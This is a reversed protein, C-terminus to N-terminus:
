LKFDNPETSAKLEKDLSNTLKFFNKETISKEPPLLVEMKGNSVPVNEETIEKVSLVDQPSNKFKEKRNTLKSRIENLIFDDINNGELRIDDITNNTDLLELLTMGGSNSILNNKLDLVKVTKNQKLWESFFAVGTDTINKDPFMLNMPYLGTEQIKKNIKEIVRAVNRAGLCQQIKTYLKDDIRNGHLVIDNIILNYKLLDLLYKFGISTILNQRLNLTRVSTNHQLAKVLFLLGTDTISNNSLNLNILASGKLWVSLLELGSDGIHEDSWSVDYIPKNKAKTFKQIWQKAFRPGLIQQIELLIDASINNNKLDIKVLTTNTHCLVLLQCAGVDTIFQGRLDLHIVKTNDRLLETLPKIGADWIGKFQFAWHVTNPDMKKLDRRVQNEHLKLQIDKRKEPSMKNGDLKILVIHHNHNLLDIFVDASEDGLGNNSIDLGTVWVEQKLILSLSILDASTFGVNSINLIKSPNIIDLYMDSFKEVWTKQRFIDNSRKRAWIVFMDPHNPMILLELKSFDKVDNLIKRNLAPCDNAKLVKLEQARFDFEQLQVNHSINLFQLQPFIIPTTFIGLSKQTFREFNSNLWTLRILSPCNKAFYELMASTIKECDRIYLAELTQESKRLLKKLEVDTLTKSDSLSINKFARQTLKRCSDEISVTNVGSFNLSLHLGEIPSMSFNKDTNDDDLEKGLFTIQRFEQFASQLSYLGQRIKQLTPKEGLIARWSENTSASIQASQTLYQYRERISLSKPIQQYREALEENFYRVINMLTPLHEKKLHLRAYKQLNLLDQTLESAGGKGFLQQTVFRNNDADEQFLQEEDQSTFLKSCSNEYQIGELFWAQLMAKIDLQQLSVFIEKLAVQYYKNDAEMEKFCFLISCLQLTLKGLMDAVFTEFFYQDNDVCILKLGDVLQYNRAAGDGAHAILDFLVSTIYYKLNLTEPLSDNTQRLFHSLNDNVNGVTQSILVPYSLSNFSGTVTIIALRNPMAGHGWLRQRLKFMLDDMMFHDPKQKVHLRIGEEFIIGAVAHRSKSLLIRNFLPQEQLLKILLPNDKEVLLKDKNKELFIYFQSTALLTTNELKASPHASYYVHWDHSEPVRIFLIRHVGLALLWKKLAANYDMLKAPSLITINMRKLNGNDPQILQDIVAPELYLLEGRGPLQLTASIGSSSSTKPKDGKKYCIQMINHELAAEQRETTVRYGDPAPHTLLTEILKAFTKPLIEELISVFYSRYTMPTQEFYIKLIADDVNDDILFHIVQRIYKKIDEATKLISNEGLFSHKYYQLLPDISGNFHLQAKQVSIAVGNDYLGKKLWYMLSQIIMSQVNHWHNTQQSDLIKLGSESKEGYLGIDDNQELYVSHAQRRIDHLFSLANKLLQGYYSPFINQTIMAQVIDVPHQRDISYFLSCAVLTQVLPKLACAKVDIKVSHQHDSIVNVYTLVDEQMQLIAIHRDRRMMIESQNNNDSQLRHQRSLIQQLNKTYDQWLSEDGYLYGPTLLSWLIPEDKISQFGEELEDQLMTMTMIRYSDIRLGAQFRLPVVGKSQTEGLSLILYEFVGQLKKIYPVITDDKLLFVYELDPYLGADERGLSGLQIICFSEQDEELLQQCKFLMENLLKKFAISLDRGSGEKRIITLQHRWNMWDETKLSNNAKPATKLSTAVKQQILVKDMWKPNIESLHKKILGYLDWATKPAYNELEKWKKIWKEIHILFLDSNDSQKSKSLEDDADNWLIKLHQAGFKHHAIGALISRTMDAAINNIESAVEIHSAAFSHAYLRYFLSQEWMERDHYYDALQRYTKLTETCFSTQQICYQMKEFVAMRETELLSVHAKQFCILLRNLLSASLITVKVDNMIAILLHKIVSHHTSATLVINELETLNELFLVQQDDLNTLMQM